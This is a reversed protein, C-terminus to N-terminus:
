QRQLKATLVGPRHRGLKRTKDFPVGDLVSQYIGNSGLEYHRESLIVFDPAFRRAVSWNVPSPEQISPKRNTEVILLFLGGIKTVRGIELMAMSVTDCHDLANFCSVIDFSNSQFPMAEAEGEIYTMISHPSSYALYDKALPDLGYRYKAMTAWELSGRPGCGIDLVSKDRYDEETLGFHGTFFFPFHAHGLMGEEERYKRRWFRLESKAKPTV